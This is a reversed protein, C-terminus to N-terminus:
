EAPAETAPAPTKSMAVRITGAETVQFGMRILGERDGTSLMLSGDLSLYGITVSEETGRQLVVAVGEPVDETGVLVPPEIRATERSKLIM